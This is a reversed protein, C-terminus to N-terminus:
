YLQRKEAFPLCIGVIGHCDLSGDDRGVYDTASSVAHSKYEIKLAKQPAQARQHAPQLVLGDTAPHVVVKRVLGPM